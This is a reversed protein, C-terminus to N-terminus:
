AAMVADYGGFASILMLLTSKPLHFNTLIADVTQFQYGPYIFIETEGQYPCLVGQTSASELARVVTTGIAITRAAHKKTQAIQDCTAQSLEFYESHMKHGLLDETRVPQFTGAGVHLTLYAQHMQAKTLRELLSEDFHLGATPAAVAGQHKAFVTQYRTQDITEAARNFYPPIPMHGYQKLLDLLPTTSNFRLLFLADKKEEVVVPIEGALLLQAGIQLPRNAKVHAWARHSDVLREILVEVQGGTIKKGYLRAQIVRTNNCVLLDHPALLEPLANFAHHSVAGTRRDLCLLRSATREPLPYRAVQKPPLKFDFDSTKLPIKM